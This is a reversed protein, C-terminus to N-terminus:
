NKLKSLLTFQNNVRKKADNNIYETSTRGNDSDTEFNSLVFKLKYRM